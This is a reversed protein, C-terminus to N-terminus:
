EGGVTKKRRKAKADILVELDLATVIKQMVDLTPSSTQDEVAKVMNYSVNAAKSLDARTWGKAKRAEIIQQILEPSDTMKVEVGIKVTLAFDQLISQNAIAIDQL